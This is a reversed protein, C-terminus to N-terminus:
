SAAGLLRVRQGPHLAQVGATVVVEGDTSVKGSVVVTAPDFRQVEVNHLSVTQTKPDVIWVAPQGEIQTLASAPISMGPGADLEMRGTVTAGLRM